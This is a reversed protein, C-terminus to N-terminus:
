LSEPSGSCGVEAAEEVERAKVTAEAECVEVKEEEEMLAVVKEAVERSEVVKEEVERSEVVKEEEVMEKGETVTVVEVLFEGVMAVTETVEAARSVAAQYGEVRVEEV